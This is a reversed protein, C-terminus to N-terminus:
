PHRKIFLYEDPTVDDPFPFASWAHAIGLRETHSFFLGELDCAELGHSVFMTDVAFMLCMAIQSRRHGLAILADAVTDVTDRERKLSAASARAVFTDNAASGIILAQAGMKDVFVWGPLLQALGDPQKISIVTRETVKRFVGPVALAGADVCDMHARGISWSAEGLFTPMFVVQSSVM